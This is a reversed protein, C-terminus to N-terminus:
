NGPVSVSELLDIFANPESYDRVVTSAGVSALIGDSDIGIFPYNLMTAVRVDWPRDGVLVIREFREVKHDELARRVALSVILSRRPADDCTAMPISPNYLGSQRLKYIASQEWCGTAVAVEWRPNVNLLALLHAAGRIEQILRPDVKTAEEVYSMFRARLREIDSESPNVGHAHMFTTQAFGTDTVLDDEIVTKETAEVRFEDRLARLYCELDVKKTDTLTGDIDFVVLNLLAEQKTNM